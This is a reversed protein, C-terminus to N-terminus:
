HRSRSFTFSRKWKVVFLFLYCRLVHSSPPRFRVYMLVALLNTASNIFPAAERIYLAFLFSFFFGVTARMSESGLLPLIAVFFIRRLLDFVEFWYYAPMYDQWLFKIVCDCAMTGRLELKMAMEEETVPVSSSSFFSELFGFAGRENNNAGNRGEDIKLTLRPQATNKSGSFTDEKIGKGKNGEEEEPLFQDDYKDISKRLYAKTM